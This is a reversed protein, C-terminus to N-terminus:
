HNNIKTTPLTTPSFEIDVGEIPNDVVRINNEMLVILNLIAKRTEPKIAFLRCKGDDFKGIITFDILKTQITEM